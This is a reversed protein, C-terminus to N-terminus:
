QASAQVLLQFASFFLNVRSQLSTKTWKIFHVAKGILNGVWSLSVKLWCYWFQFAKCWWTRYYSCQVPKFRLVQLQQNLKALAIFTFSYSVKILLFIRSLLVRDSGADCRNVNSCNRQSWDYIGLSGHFSTTHSYIWLKTAM